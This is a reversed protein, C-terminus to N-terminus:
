FHSFNLEIKQQLSKTCFSDMDSSALMPDGSDCMSMDLLLISSLPLVTTCKDKAMLNKEQPNYQRGLCIEPVM